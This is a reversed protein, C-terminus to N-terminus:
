TCHAFIIERRAMKNELCLICCSQFSVIEPIWTVGPLASVNTLLPPIVFWRKIAYQRLLMDALITLMWHDRDFNYHAVDTNNYIISLTHVTSLSRNVHVFIFTKLIILLMLYNYLHSAQLTVSCSDMLTLMHLITEPDNIVFNSEMEFQGGVLQMCVLMWHMVLM